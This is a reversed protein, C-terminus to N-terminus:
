SFDEQSQWRARHLREKIGQAAILLEVLRRREDKSPSEAHMISVHTMGLDIIRRLTDLDQPRLTVCIERM